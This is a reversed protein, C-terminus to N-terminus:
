RSAPTGRSVAKGIWALAAALPPDEGALVAKRTLRVEEDPVVGRGEIHEGTPTVFDGIAYELVDGNPLKRLMAPLAGGPSASGFVRARGISQMGAAFIESASYSSTDVLIALKGAYPRVISGDASVVRPNAVLKLESERTRVTGLSIPESLFHGSVGMLMTLVGGPNQRLDLVIGDSHRAAAVARDIASSIATMWINFHIYQVRRGGPATLARQDLRAFLTPLHGFKVPQGTQRVRDVDVKVVTDAGDRLQLRARSGVPGRLLANAAAWTRFSQARDGKLGGPTGLGSAHVGDLAEIIWGPRIGAAFGPSAQDVRTVVLDGDLPTVELGMDGADGAAPGPESTPSYAASPLLEFHSRGLASLLERLIPRLEDDNAASAARPRFEEHLRNWDADTRSQDVYTERIAAWAADFTALCPSVTPTLPSGSIQRASAGAGEFTVLFVVAIPILAAVSSRLLRKAVAHTPHNPESYTNV